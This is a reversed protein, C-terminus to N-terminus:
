GEQSDTTPTPLRDIVAQIADRAQILDFRYRQALQEANRDFRDDAALRALSEARKLLDYRVAEFAEAIPRRRRPSPSGNGQDSGFDPQQPSPKQSPIQETDAEKAPYTKGDGGFVPGRTANAVGALDRSVTAFNVGTAAAIARTSLGIERMSAVIERREERPLRVRCEGFEQACYEDWSSYGLAEWVRDLYAQAILQWLVEAGAKIQDTLERATSLEMVMM